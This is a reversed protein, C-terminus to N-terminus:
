ARELWSLPCANSLASNRSEEFSFAPLDQTHQLMREQGTELSTLRAKMAELKQMDITCMNKTNSVNLNAESVVDTDLSTLEM